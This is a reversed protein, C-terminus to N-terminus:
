PRLQVSLEEKTVTQNGANDTATVQVTYIGNEPLNGPTYVWAANWQGAYVSANMATIFEDGQLIEVRITIGARDTSVTGHLNSHFISRADAPTLERTLLEIVPAEGGALRAQTDSLSPWQM